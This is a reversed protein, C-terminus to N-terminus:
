AVYRINDETNHIFISMYYLKKIMSKAQTAQIQTFLNNILNHMHPM